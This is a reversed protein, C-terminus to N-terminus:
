IDSRNVKRMVHYVLVLGNGLQSVTRIVDERSMM